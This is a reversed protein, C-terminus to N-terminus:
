KDENMKMRTSREKRHHGHWEKMRKGSENRKGPVMFDNV